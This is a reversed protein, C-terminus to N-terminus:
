SFIKKEAINVLCKKSCKESSQKAARISQLKCKADRSAGIKQGRISRQVRNTIMYERKPPLKPLGDM